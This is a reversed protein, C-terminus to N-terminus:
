ITQLVHSDVLSMWLLHKPSEGSTQRPLAAKCFNSMRSDLLAAEVYPNVARLHKIAPAAQCSLVAAALM